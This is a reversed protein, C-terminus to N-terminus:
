KYCIFSSIGQLTMVFFFFRFFFFFPRAPDKLGSYWVKFSFSPFWNDTPLNSFFSVYEWSALCNHVHAYQGREPFAQSPRSRGSSISKSARYLCSNLAFTSSYTAQQLISLMGWYTCLVRPHLRSSMSM